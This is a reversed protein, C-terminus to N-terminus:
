WLNLSRFMDKCPGIFLLMPLAVPPAGLCCHDLIFTTMQTTRHRGKMQRQPQTEIVDSALEATTTLWNFIRLAPNVPHVVSSFSM